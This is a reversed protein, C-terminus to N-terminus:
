YLDFLLLNRTCSVTFLHSWIQHRRRRGLSLQIAVKSPIQLDHREMDHSLPAPHRDHPLSLPNSAARGSISIQRGKPSNSMPSVVSSSPSPSAALTSSMNLAIQPTTSTPPWTSNTPRSVSLVISRTRLSLFHRSVFLASLTKPPGHGKLPCSLIPSPTLTPSPRSGHTTSSSPSAHSPLPLPSLLSPPHISFRRGKIGTPSALPPFYAHYVSHTMATVAIHNAYTRGGVHHPLM